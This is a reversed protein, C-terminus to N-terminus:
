ASRIYTYGKIFFKLSNTFSGQDILNTNRTSGPSVTAFYTDSGHRRALAACYFAIMGKIHGYGDAPKYKKEYRKGNLINVYFDLENGWKYAFPEGFGAESGSFIVRSIGRGIRKTEILGNVLAAHGILNTEAIVTAGSECLSGKTDSTFGGANLLVGDLVYGDPINTSIFEIASKVTSRNSADFQVCILSIGSSKCEKSLAEITENGSDVNRCLLYITSETEITPGGAHNINDNHNQILQRVSEAGLGANAGTVAFYKHTISTEDMPVPCIKAEKERTEKYHMRTAVSKRRYLLHSLDNNHHMTNLIVVIYHSPVSVCWACRGTCGFVGDSMLNIIEM